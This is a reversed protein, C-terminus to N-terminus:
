LVSTGWYSAIKVNAKEMCHHENNSTRQVGLRGRLAVDHHFDAPADAYTDGPSLTEPRSADWYHLLLM